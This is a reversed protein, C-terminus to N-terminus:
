IGLYLHTKSQIVAGVWSDLYVSHQGGSLIHFGRSQSRALVLLFTWNEGVLLGGNSGGNITLRKPSTYGEKILYEAAHQFDDFCNQKKDM